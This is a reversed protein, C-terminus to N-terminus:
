GLIRKREPSRWCQRPEELVISPIGSGHKNKQTLFFSNWESRLIGTEDQACRPIEDCCSGESHEPHSCINSQSHPADRASQKMLVGGDEKCGCTEWSINFEKGARM